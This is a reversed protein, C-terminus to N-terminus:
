KNKRLQSFLKYKLEALQWDEPNDIDQAEWEPIVISGTNDTILEPNRLFCKVKLWYFQGADHYTDPLDQSRVRLNKKDIMQIKDNEFKLARQIPYSYKIVPFVVDRDKALLLDYCERLREPNIFPATPYICCVYDFEQGLQKYKEIVELIVDATAAFDDANKKSRMFPVSAGLDKAISVIETDDTSVMIEDFLSSRNALDISYAVIPRGSFLRINKRPIRKSGGRAPIIAIVKSM